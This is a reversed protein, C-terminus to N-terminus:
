DGRRVQDNPPGCATLLRLSMKKNQRSFLRDVHTRSSCAALSFTAFSLHSARALAQRNQLNPAARVPCLSYQDLKGGMRKAANSKKSCFPFRPPTITRNDMSDSFFAFDCFVFVYLRKEGWFLLRQFSSKQNKNLSPLLVSFTVLANPLM